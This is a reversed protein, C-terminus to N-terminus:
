GNGRMEGVQLWWTPDVEVYIEEYRPAELAALPDV